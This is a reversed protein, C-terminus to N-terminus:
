PASDWTCADRGRAPEISVTRQVTAEIGAGSWHARWLTLAPESQCVLRRARSSPALGAEAVARLYASIDTSAAETLAKQRRTDLFRVFDDLDRTYAARTNDAAGKEASMMEMFRAVLDRDRPPDM